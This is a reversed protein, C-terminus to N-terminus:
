LEKKFAIYTLLFYTAILYVFIFGIYWFTLAVDYMSHAFLSLIICAIFIGIKMRYSNSSFLVSHFAVLMLLSAFIHLVVSFISRFFILSILGESGESISVYNWAYLINESWAFWLAVCAWICFLRQLYITDETSYFGYGSIFKIWEELLAVILYYWVISGFTYFIIDQFRVSVVTTEWLFFQLLSISCITIILALFIYIYSRIYKKYIGKRKIIYSQILFISGLLCGFFLTFFVIVDIKLFDEVISVSEFVRYLFPGWIDQGGTSLFMVPLAWAVIWLLFQLRSIWYHFFETFVYLWFVLPLCLIFVAILFLFVSSLM